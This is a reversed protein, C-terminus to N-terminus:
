RIYLYLTVGKTDGMGSAALTIASGAVAGLGDKATKVTTASESLNAGLGCLVDQGDSDNLLIDFSASPTTGPVAVFRLVEGDYTYSTTGAATGDAASVVVMKIKKVSTNRKQTITCSMTM